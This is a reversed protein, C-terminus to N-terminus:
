RLDQASCGGLGLDPAKGRHQPGSGAPTEGPSSGHGPFQAVQKQSHVKLRDERGGPMGHEMGGPGQSKIEEMEPVNRM